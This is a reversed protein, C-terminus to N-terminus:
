RLRFTEVARSLAGAQESMSEAAAAAQEVLAANQQTVEDMETVSKGIQEVGAAQERNADSIGRVLETVKSVSQVVESITAGAQAVRTGGTAIKDVSVSILSRIQRAAEASRQALTRVETAVVAFGRGQEGARAAEVAANLALINTQFAIGDIVGVIDAIQRSSAQIDAMTSVVERMMEGGASAVKNSALALESAGQAHDANQRVTATIEEMTSSTRELSAAQEETRRSLDANGDAIERAAQDIATASHRIQEMLERLREVTGNADARLTGFTGQYATEIRQTLDGAALAALIRSVEALGGDSIDMLRNLGEIMARFEFEFHAADGRVKFDGAVAAEVLTRIQGNVAQLSIKVSDIAETIRARQGPMRDMDPSLDGRAYRKMVEVIRMKVAIHAGVLDNISAAMRGYSGAFQEAPITADIDGAAHQSAMKEQAAAFSEFTDVLAKMAAMLSGGDGARLRIASLEGRSLARAIRAAEAPEGGLQRLLVRLLVLGLTSVSFVTVLLVGLLALIAGHRTELARKEGQRALGVNYIVYDDISKMLTGAAQDQKLQLARALDKHGERSAKLLEAQPVLFEAFLATIQDFRRKDEADVVTPEYDKLGARVLGESEEILRELDAANGANASEVHRQLRLRTRAFNSNAKDLAILAPVTNDNAFTAAEFVRQIQFFGIGAMTLVGLVACAILLLIRLRVTM